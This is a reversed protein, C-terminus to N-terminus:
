LEWVRAAIQLFFWTKCLLGPKITIEQSACRIRVHSDSARFANLRHLHGFDAATVRERDCLFMEADFASAKNAFPRELTIALVIIERFLDRACFFHRMRRRTEVRM